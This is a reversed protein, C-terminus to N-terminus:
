RPRTCLACPPSSGSSRRSALMSSPSGSSPKKLGHLQHGIMSAAPAARQTKRPRATPKQIENMPTGITRRDREDAPDVLVVAAVESASCCRLHRFGRRMRAPAQAHTAGSTAARHRRSPVLRAGRHRYPPELGHSRISTSWSRAAFARLRPLEVQYGFWSTASPSRRERSRRNAASALLRDHQACSRGGSRAFTRVDPYCCVVRHLVVVDAREVRRLRRPSISASSATSEVAWAPRM